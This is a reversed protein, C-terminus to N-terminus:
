YQCEASFGPGGFYFHTGFNLGQPGMVMDYCKPKTVFEILEQAPTAQMTNTGWMHELNRIYTSKTYYGQRPFHGSGMKTTTHRGNAGRNMVEGGWALSVAGPRLSNFLSGPWYGLYKGLM